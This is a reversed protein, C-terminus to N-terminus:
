GAAIVSVSRFSTTLDITLRAGTIAVVGRQGVAAVNGDVRWAFSTTSGAPVINARIVYRGPPLCTGAELQATVPNGNPDLVELTIQDVPCRSPPTPPPTTPCTDVTVEVPTACERRGAITVTAHFTTTGTGPVSYTHIAAAQG